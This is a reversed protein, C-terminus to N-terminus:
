DVREIRLKNDRLQLFGMYSRNGEKIQIYVTDEKVTLNEIDEFDQSELYVEFGFGKWKYTNITKRNDELIEIAVIEDVGDGDIDYFGYDTFPKSLRSGRWKPVIKGDKFSYIFPRKAMVPHLPSEKYVGISIDDIKDGDVDGIVIKWPNLSSFNKRYIEKGEEMKFIIVEEGYEKKNDGTLVVLYEKGDGVIDGIDYDKVKEDLLFLPNKTNLSNDKQFFFFSLGLLFISLIILDKKSYKM